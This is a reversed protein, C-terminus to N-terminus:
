VRSDMPTFIIVNLNEFGSFVEEIRPRVDNWELGGFGCGLAPMAISKIGKNRVVEKLDNLGADIDEM